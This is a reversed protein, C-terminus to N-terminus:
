NYIGSIMLADKLGDLADNFEDESCQLELYYKKINTSGNLIKEVIKVQIDSLNQQLLYDLKNNSKPTVDYLCINDDDNDSEIFISTIRPSITVHDPYDDKFKEFILNTHSKLLHHRVQENATLDNKKVKFSKCCPCTIITNANVGLESLKDWLISHHNEILHTSLVNVYESCLPCMSSINRKAASDKKVANSFRHSLSGWFYNKFHGQGNYRSKGRQEKPKWEKLVKCFVDLYEQTFDDMSDYLWGYKKFWTQLYLQPKYIECIKKYSDNMSQKDKEILANQYRIIALELDDQCIVM